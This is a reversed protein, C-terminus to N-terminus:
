KKVTFTLYTREMLFAKGVFSPIGAVLRGCLPSITARYSVRLQVLPYSKGPLFAPSLMGDCVHGQQEM